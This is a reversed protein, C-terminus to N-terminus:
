DILDQRLGWAVLEVATGFGTKARMNRVHTEVTTPKLGLQEAVARTSGRNALAQLVHRERTTLRTGPRTTTTAVEPAISM